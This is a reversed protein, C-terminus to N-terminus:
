YKSFSAECIDGGEQEEEKILKFKDLIRFQSIHEIPLVLHLEGREAYLAWTNVPLYTKRGNKFEICIESETNNIKM